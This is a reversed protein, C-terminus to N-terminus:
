AYSWLVIVNFTVLFVAHQIHTTNALSTVSFIFKYPALVFESGKRAEYPMTPRGIFDYRDMGVRTACTTAYQVLM